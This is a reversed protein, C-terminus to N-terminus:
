KGEAEKRWRARAGVEERRKFGDGPEEFTTSKRNHLLLWPPRLRSVEGGAMRM